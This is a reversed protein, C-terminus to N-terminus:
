EITSIRQISKPDVEAKKFAQFISGVAALGEMFYKLNNSGQYSDDEMLTSVSAPEFIILLKVIKGFETYRELSDKPMAKIRTFISTLALSKSILSQFFSTIVLTVDNDFLYYRHNVFMAFNKLSDNCVWGMNAYAQIVEQIINSVTKTVITEIRGSYYSKMAEVNAFSAQPPVPALLTQLDAASITGLKKLQDMRAQM